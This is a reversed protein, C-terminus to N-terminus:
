FPISRGHERGSGNLSHGPAYFCSSCMAMDWLVAAVTASVM